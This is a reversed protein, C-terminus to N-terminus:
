WPKKKRSARKALRKEYKNESKEDLRAASLLRIRDERLDIVVYYVADDTRGIAHYRIDQAAESLSDAILIDAPREFILAADLLDVGFKKLTSQRDAEDWSFRTEANVKVDSFVGIQSSLVKGGGIKRSRDKAPPEIRRTRSM